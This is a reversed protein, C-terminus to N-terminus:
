GGALERRQGKRGFYITWGIFEDSSMRARLEGVTMGLQEAVFFEM